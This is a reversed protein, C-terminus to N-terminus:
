SSLDYLLLPIQMEQASLGGHHGRHKQEFRDKEYWWVAERDHPLIVVNGRRATFAPSVPQPGFLGAAELEQEPYVDARGDLAARLIAVAEEVAGDLVYLFMDRPSGGPALIKGRRNRRLLPLLREFEPLQNLYITKEPYVQMQGHDATLLLFTNELRGAAQRWFVRELTTFIADMEAWAQPAEPGYRHLTADLTDLYVFLATGAPAKEARMRVNVLVEAWTKFGSTRAGRTMLTSYTSARYDNHQFVYTRIGDAALTQFFTSPPYLGAPDIGTARLTEPQSDGSFSFQLPIIMDDLGPEYFQWEFLGHQGVVQNTFLTTVHATTTSPFQSTLRAVQGERTIRRLFPYRHAIKEFFCWGFADILIVIVRDYRRDEYGLQEASLVPAGKGTLLHHVLDPIHAFCGHEYDPLVAGNPVFPM